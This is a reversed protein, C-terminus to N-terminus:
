STVVLVAVLHRRPPPSINNWGSRGQKKKSIIMIINYLYALATILLSVQSINQNYGDM